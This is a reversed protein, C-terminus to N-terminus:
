LITSGVDSGIKLSQSQEGVAGLDAALEGSLVLSLGLEKAQEVHRQAEQIGHAM